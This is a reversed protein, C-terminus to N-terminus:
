MWLMQHRGRLGNLTFKLMVLSLHKADKKKDAEVHNRHNHTDLLAAM